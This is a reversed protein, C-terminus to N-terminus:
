LVLLPELEYKSAGHDHRIARDLGMALAVIGDIKETSKSKDLKINGASDEKVVANDTMWRLVANGGHRIRRSLVLNLLEKTPASMSAFGQGIPVVELGAEQMDQVLQTAGWRDFGVERIDYEQALQDFRALIAKYDIVDGPTATLLGQRAWVDYPVRDRRVRDAINDGPIFFHPLVDFTGDPQPFVLVLAAIDTTSALDLGAYCAQGKEIQLPEACEDWAALPLWRTEQRTWINLHLRKFTNEYAPVEQAHKAEQRLYDLKITVGLGPNAKAWVAEDLWDDKEDAAYIVPLFSPDDVVGSQVKLAYDHLEWCISNRDFGATTILFTVPQRRSGTSTILVDYLDRSPQVHLEDFVVGSSNLGHQQAVESSIVRYFSGNPLILRKTSDIPKCRKALIPQRKVMQSAVNYVIGAQDRDAAAGYV